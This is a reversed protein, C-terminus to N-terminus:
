KLRPCDPACKMIGCKPSHGLTRDLKARRTMDAALDDRAKISKQYRLEAAVHQLCSIELENM